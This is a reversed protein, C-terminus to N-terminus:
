KEAAQSSKPLGQSVLLHTDEQLRRIKEQQHIVCFYILSIVAVCVFLGAVITASAEFGMEDVLLGGLGSGTIHGFCYVSLYLGSFLGHTNINDPCGLEFAGRIIHPVTPVSRAGFTAGFLVLGVMVCWEKHDLFPFLQSPGMFLLSLAGVLNGVVILQGSLKKRDVLYGWVPLTAIDLVSLLVFALGVFTTTADYSELHHSLTTQLFGMALPGLWVSLMAISVRSSRLLSIVSGEKHGSCDPSPMCIAIVISIFITFAGVVWFPMGFGSLEYLLTGISPGCIMGVSRLGQRAAFVTAIHEPFTRSVVASSSTIFAAVGLGEFIRILFSLVVFSTGPPGWDLFGMLVLCAGSIMFGSACLFKPGLTTLLTGIVASGVLVAMTFSGLVLGTMTLSSGKLIAERPFFPAPLSMALGAAFDAACFLVLTYKQPTSIKSFELGNESQQFAGGNPKETPSNKSSSDDTAVHSTSGNPVSQGPPPREATEQLEISSMDHSGPVAM